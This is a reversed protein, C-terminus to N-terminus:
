VPIEEWLMSIQAVTTTATASAAVSVWSNPPVVVRGNLEIWHVGGTDVTLAGTHLDSFPMFWGGAATPTGVRFTSCAPGAGGLYMNAVSDIATTATPAVTQGTNGTLGLAAAVTTVVTVGYGIALINAVVSSSGNWLLPGGTGAATSFIVPATVVARAMFMNGRRTTEYFQGHLETTVIEGSRGQRIADNSGDALVQPGVTGELLM